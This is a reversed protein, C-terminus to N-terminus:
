KSGKIDKKTMVCTFEGGGSIRTFDPEYGLKEYLGLAVKRANIWITEVGEEALWKEAEKICDSALGRHRYEELTVVREIKANKEDLRHIRCTAAPTIGSLALIYTSEPTDEDFELTLALDFGRCMAQTRVYYVGARKWEEGKEVRLIQRDDTSHKM